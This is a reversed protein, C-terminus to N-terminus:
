AVWGTANRTHQVTLVLPLIARDRPGELKHALPPGEQDNPIGEETKSPEVLELLAEADGAVDEGIAEVSQDFLPDELGDGVAGPLIAVVILERAHPKVEVNGQDTESLPAVSVQAVLWRRARAALAIAPGEDGSEDGLAGDRHRYAFGLEDGAWATVRVGGGPSYKCSLGLGVHSGGRQALYSEAGLTETPRHRCAWQVQPGTMHRRHTVIPIKPIMTEMALIQRVRTKMTLFITRIVKAMFM